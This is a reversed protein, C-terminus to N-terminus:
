LAGVRLGDRALSAVRGRPGRAAEEGGALAPLPNGGGAQADRDRKGSPPEAGGRAKARRALDGGPVADKATSASTATGLKGAANVVVPAGASISTGSAGALFTATQKGATGIRITGSEGARGANAIDVDNSGTTL